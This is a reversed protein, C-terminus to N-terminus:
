TSRRWLAIGIAILIVGNFVLLLSRWGSSSAPPSVHDAVPREGATRNRFFQAVDTVPKKWRGGQHQELQWDFWSWNAPVSLTLAEDDLKLNFNAQQIVTMRVTTVKNNAVNIKLHVAPCLIEGPYVTFGQFVETRLLRGDGPSIMKWERPLGDQQNLTLWSLHTGADESPGPGPYELRYWQNQGDAQITSAAVLAENPFTRFWDMTESWYNCAGRRYARVGRNPHDVLLHIDNSIVHEFVQSLCRQETGRLRFTKWDGVAKINAANQESTGELKEPCFRELLKQTLQQDAVLPIEALEALFEDCTLQRSKLTFMLFLYDIEATAVESRYGAWIANLNQEVSEREAEDLPRFVAPESSGPEARSAAIQQDPDVPSTGDAQVRGLSFLGLLSGLWLCFIFLGARKMRCWRITNSFEAELGRSCFSKNSFFSDPRMGHHRGVLDRGSVSASQHFWLTDM